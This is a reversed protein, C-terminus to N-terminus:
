QADRHLVVRTVVAVANGSEDTSSGDLNFLVAARDFDVPGGHNQRVERFVPSTIEPTVKVASDEVKSLSVSLSLHVRQAASGPVWDGMLKIEMGVDTRNIRKSVIGTETTTTGSVYPQDAVMKIQPRERLNVTQDVHYLIRTDGLARMMKDFEALTAAQALATTDIGVVDAAPLGLRYVTAELRVVPPPGTPERSEREAPRRLERGRSEPRRVREQTEQAGDFVTAVRTAEPASRGGLLPPRREGSDAPVIGLAFLSLTLLVRACVSMTFM